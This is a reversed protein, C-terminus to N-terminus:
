FTVRPSCVCVPAAAQSLMRCPKASPAPLRARHAGQKIEVSGTQTNDLKQLMVLSGTTDLIAIAVPWNNKKAEAEAATM